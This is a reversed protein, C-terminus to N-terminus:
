RNDEDNEGLILEIVRQQGRSFDKELLADHMEKRIKPTEILWKITSEISEMSQEVGLGMNIFGNELSAFAHQMERKNQALVISPVGMSALEYITRGQATIALDAKALYTSVRKVDNHVFIHHAKDDIVENKYKYGFGTIIHFEIQPYYDSLNQLIRYTKRTMDNPDSGGYLVVINNVEKSFEKPKTALFEDRIFYYKYGSYRNYSKEDHYLANIVCDACDAGSGRDEFNVVRSVRAKEALVMEKTTNLIDNIVIDPKEEEIIKLFDEENEILIYKFFSEEIRKVGLECDKKTVFVMEHGTLHYALSLGRYIHGMGLTETGDARYLIKKKKLIAECSKWDIDTDIDVSEEVSLEYVDVNKGIRSNENVCDRRSILFAGTEIYNDPLWQRNVRKAYNPVKKGDISAWSLHPINVVSILTDVNEANFYELASILTEDKLTPSTPQMTVVVDYKKKNKEEMVSLAHFIVPDLTVDDGSLASPRMVVQVGYQRAIEAIEEDDTDIVIDVSTNERLSMANRISYYILPKGNMIRINKKPIGKSKGRAPIVVITQM